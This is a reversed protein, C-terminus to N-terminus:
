QNREDSQQGLMKLLQSGYAVWCFAVVTIILIATILAAYNLTDDNM